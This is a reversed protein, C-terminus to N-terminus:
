TRRAASRQVAGVFVVSSWPDRDVVRDPCKEQGLLLEM